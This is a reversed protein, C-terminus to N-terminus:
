DEALHDAIRGAVAPSPFRRAHEIDSVFAASVGAAQALGRVTEGKELRVHRLEEGFATWARGRARSLAAKAAGIQYSCTRYVGALLESDSVAKEPEPEGAGQARKADNYAIAGDVDTMKM